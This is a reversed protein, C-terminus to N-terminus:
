KLSGYAIGDYKHLLKRLDANEERLRIIEAEVFTHDGTMFSTKQQSKSKKEQLVKQAKIKQKRERENAAYKEIENAEKTIEDLRQTLAEIEELYKEKSETIKALAAKNQQEVVKFRDQEKTSKAAKKKNTKSNFEEIRKESKTVKNASKMAKHLTKQKLSKTNTASKFDIQNFSDSSSEDSIAFKNKKNHVGSKVKGGLLNHDDYDVKGFNYKQSLKNITKDSTRASQYDRKSTIKQDNYLVSKELAQYRNTLSTLQAQLQEKTSEAKASEEKAKQLRKQYNTIQENSSDIYQFATDKDYQDQTRKYMGTARNRSEIYANSHEEAKRIEEELEEIEIKQRAKLEEIEKEQQLKLNTLERKGEIKTEELTQQLDELEQELSTLLKNGEFDKYELQEEVSQIQKNLQEIEADKEAIITDATSKVKVMTKTLSKSSFNVISSLDTRSM